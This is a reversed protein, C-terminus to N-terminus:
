TTPFKESGAIKLHSQLVVRQCPANEEMHEIRNLLLRMAVRGMESTARSVVTLPYGLIDLMEVEDFGVLAIDQPVHVNKSHLARLCGVTMLNNCSFIATPRNKMALLNLTAEYSSQNRFDALRIHDPDPVIGAEALAQQYGQMRERGPVTDQPGAIIAIKRHGNQILLRTIEYSSHVNDVFVCDCAINKMERDVFVIPIGAAQVRKLLLENNEAQESMPTMIIGSVRYALMDNLADAEQKLQDDTNCLILRYDNTEAIKSAAYFIQSFFDNCIDPIIVGITPSRKRSLSSAIVSPSYGTQKVAEMVRKRAKDSTYSTGNLVRSVTAQSVGAVAAIDKITVGMKETENRRFNVMDPYKNHYM